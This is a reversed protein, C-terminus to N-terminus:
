CAPGRPEWRFLCLSVCLDLRLASGELCNSRRIACIQRRHEPDEGPPGADLCDDYDRWCGDIRSEHDIYCQRICWEVPQPLWSRDSVDECKGQLIGQLVTEPQLANTGHGEASPPDAMASVSLATGVPWFAMVAFAVGVWGLTSRNRKSGFPM